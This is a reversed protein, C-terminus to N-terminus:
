LVKPGYWILIAKIEGYNMERNTELKRKGYIPLLAKPNELLKLTLKRM